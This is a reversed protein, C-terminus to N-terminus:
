TRDTGRMRSVALGVGELGGSFLASGVV